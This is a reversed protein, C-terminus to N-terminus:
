RYERVAAVADAIKRMTAMSRPGPITDGPDDLILFKGKLWGATQWKKELEAGTQADPVSLAIIDPAMGIAAELSIRPYPLSGRYANRGGAGRILAEYFGDAGIITMDGPPRGADERSAIGLLVAPRWGEDAEGMMKRFEAIHQSAEEQKGCLRGIEKVSDLYSALSSYDFLAVSLGVNEIYKKFHGMDAPLIVLDPRSRAIAELSIQRFGGTKPKQRAEPPWVCFETVGAVRDGLGLVYLTETIAPALSVIRQPLAQQAEPVKAQSSFLLLSLIALLIGICLLKRM